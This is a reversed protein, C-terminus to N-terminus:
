RLRLRRSSCDCGAMVGSPERSSAHRLRRSAMWGLLICSVLYVVSTSLAIGYIGIWQMFLLNLLINLALNIAAIRPLIHNAQLASILRVFVIGVTHFPVQLLLLSQIAGVVQTDRATFAGREFLLGILPESVLILLLTAVVSIVGTLAVWFRLTHRIAQWERKAVLDSFQPLVASGLAVIGLGVLFAPLKSGYNLAAVSGPDLMAAMAQDVVMTGSMLLAGSALPLYQHVVQRLEPTIGFHQPMIPIELRKLLAVLVLCQLLFGVITGTALAYIGWTEGFVILFALASIPMLAPALAAVFYRENANLVATWLSSLGSLALVPLFVLFLSFTLALKQHDFGAALLPLLHQAAIALAALARM